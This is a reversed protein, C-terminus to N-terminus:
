VGLSFSFTLFHDVTRDLLCIISLVCASGLTYDFLGKLADIFEQSFRVCVLSSSRDISPGICCLVLRFMVRSLVYGFAFRELRWYSIELGTHM